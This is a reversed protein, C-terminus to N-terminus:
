YATITADLQNNINNIDIICPWAFILYHFINLKPRAARKNSTSTYFWVTGTRSRRLILTLEYNTVIKCNLSIVAVDYWIKFPVYNQCGSTFVEVIPNCIFQLFVTLTKLGSECLKEDLMSMFRKSEAIGNQLKPKVKNRCYSPAASLTLLSRSVMCSNKVSEIDIQLQGTCVHM